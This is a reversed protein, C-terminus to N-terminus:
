KRDGAIYHDFYELSSEDEEVAVESDMALYAANLDNQEKIFQIMKPHDEPLGEVESWKLM